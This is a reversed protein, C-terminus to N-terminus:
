KNKKKQIQNVKPQNTQQYRNLVPNQHEKTASM